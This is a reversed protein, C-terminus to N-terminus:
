KTQRLVGSEKAKGFLFACWEIIKYIKGWTSKPDPTRTGATIISASTVVATAISFVEPAVDVITQFVQEIAM